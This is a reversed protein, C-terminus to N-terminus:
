TLQKVFPSVFSHSGPKRELEAGVLPPPFVFLHVQACSAPKQVCCFHRGYSLFDMSLVWCM